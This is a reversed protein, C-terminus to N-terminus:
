TEKATMYPERTVRSLTKPSVSCLLLGAQDRKAEHIARKDRKLRKPSVSCQGGKGRKWNGLLVKIRLLGSLNLNEAKLNRIEARLHHFSSDAACERSRALHDRETALDEM